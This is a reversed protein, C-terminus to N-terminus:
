EEELPAKKGVAWYKKGKTKKDNTKLLELAVLKKLHDSVATPKRGSTNEDKFNGATVFQVEPNRAKNLIDVDLQDLERGKIEDETVFNNSAIPSGDLSFVSRKICGNVENYVLTFPEREARNLNRAASIHCDIITGELPFGDIKETPEALTLLLHADDKIKSTGRIINEKNLHHLLLIAAGNDKIAKLLSNFIDRWGDATDAHRPPFLTGLNDMTVLDYKKCMAIFRLQDDPNTLDLKDDGKLDLLCIFHLNKTVRDANRSNGIILKKLRLEFETRSMEADLYLVKYPKKTSLRNGMSGGDALTMCTDMTFYSKGIKAPGAILVLEGKKFLKELMFPIEDEIDELKRLTMILDAAKKEKPKLDINHIEKVSDCFEEYSKLKKIKFDKKKHDPVSSSSSTM